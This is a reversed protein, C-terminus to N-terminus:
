EDEVESGEDEEPYSEEDGGFADSASEDPEPPADETADDTGFDDSSSADDDTAGDGSVTDPEISQGAPEGSPQYPPIPPATEAGGCAAALAM